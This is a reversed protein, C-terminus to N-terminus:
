CRPSIRAPPHSLTGTTARAPRSEVLEPDLLAPEPPRRAPDPPPPPPIEIQEFKLLSAQTEKDIEAKFRKFADIGQAAIEADRKVADSLIQQNIKEIELAKIAELQKIVEVNGGAQRIESAYREAVIAKQKEYENLAINTQLELTRRQM